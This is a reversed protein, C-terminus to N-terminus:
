SSTRIEEFVVNTPRLSMLQDRVVDTVLIYATTALFFLRDGKWMEQTIRLERASLDVEQSGCRRCTSLVKYGPPNESKKQVIIEYYPGIGSPDISLPVEDIMDEPEGTSPMPPPLRAERKGIKRLTVPYAVVDEPCVSMLVDKVRQSVVLSAVTAWLFDARPRSPVDLFGPQLTDGPQFVTFPDGELSLAQMLERQLAAHEREGRPSPDFINRRNRLSEPCVYPLVRTGGVGVRYCVYCDLLPLCYPHHLQGNIYTYRYDSDYNPHNIRWFRM